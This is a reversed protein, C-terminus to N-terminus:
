LLMKLALASAAALHPNHKVYFYGRQLQKISDRQWTMSQAHYVYARDDVRCYPDTSFCSEFYYYPLVVIRPDNKFRSYQKSFISPGTSYSIKLEDPLFKSQRRKKILDLLLGPWFRCKRICGFIGNNVFTEKGFVVNMISREFSNISIGSALMEAGPYRALLDDLPKLSCTDMDVYFGGYHYVIFYRASDVKQHLLTYENYTKLFAPYYMSLFRTISKDDWFMHQWHPHNKKWTRRMKSYKNPIHDEGQLWIQHIIRPFDDSSEPM